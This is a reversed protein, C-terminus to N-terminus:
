FTILCYVGNLVHISQSVVTPSPGRCRLFLKYFINKCFSDTLKRQILLFPNLCLDRKPFLGEPNPDFLFAVSVRMPKMGDAAAFFVVAAVGFGCTNKCLVTQGGQHMSIDNRRLRHVFGKKKIRRESGENFSLPLFFEIGAQDGRQAADAPTQLFCVTHVVVPPEMIKDQIQIGFITIVVSMIQFLLAIVEQEGKKIIGSILRIDEPFPRIRVWPVAIFVPLM